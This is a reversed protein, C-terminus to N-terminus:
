HFLAQSKLPRSISMGEISIQWCEYETKAEFLHFNCNLLFQKRLLCGLVRYNSLDATFNQLQRM